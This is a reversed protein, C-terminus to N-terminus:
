DFYSGDVVINEVRRVGLELLRRAMSLLDGFDLTPDGEGRLILTDIGGDPEIAGALTTRLRYEPGLEVLATAATVLKMNSAPNRPTEANLSYIRQGTSADAVVAGIGSGLKAEDILSALREALKADQAASEHAPLLVAPAALLAALCAQLLARA